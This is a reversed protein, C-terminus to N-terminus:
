YIEDSSFHTIDIQATGGPTQTWIMIGNNGDDFDNDRIVGNRIPFQEHGNIFIHIEDGECTMKITNQANLGLKIDYSYYRDMGPHLIVYPAKGQSKLYQDYKYVVYSGAHEGSVIIRFEYWGYEHFRCVVGYQSNSSYVNEFTAEVSSDDAYTNDNLFYMATDYDPMRFSIRKRVPYVYDSNTKGLLIYKYWGNSEYDMDTFNDDYDASVSLSVAFLCVLVFVLTFFAVKKNM